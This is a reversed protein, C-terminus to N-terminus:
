ATRGAVTAASGATSNAPRFTASSTSGDSSRRRTLHVATASCAKTTRTRSCCTRCRTGTTTRGRPRCNLRWALSSNTRTTTSGSPTKSALDLAIEEATCTPTPHRGVQLDSSLDDFARAYRRLFWEDQGAVCAPVAGLPGRVGPCGGAPRARLRPGHRNPLRPRIGRRRPRRASARASGGYAPDLHGPPLDRVWRGRM